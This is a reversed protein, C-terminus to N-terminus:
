EDGLIGENLWRDINTTEKKKKFAEYDINCWKGTIAKRLVVYFNKYNNKNNISEVYEDLKNIADDVFEKDYEECMKQYEADTLLIRGYEGYKHREDKEKIYEKNNTNINTNNINTNSNNTNYVINNDNATKPFHLNSKPLISKGKETIAYWLTRDRVDSNYCGTIILGNEILKNLTNRIKKESMYPFLEKFAKISNYTWYYGDYFNKGNAENKEIWYNINKLLIAEEIGYEKAIDIDFSHESM